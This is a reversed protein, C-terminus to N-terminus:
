QMLPLYLLKPFSFFRHLNNKRQQLRSSSSALVSVETPERLGILFFNLPLLRLVDFIVHDFGIILKWCRSSMCLYRRIKELESIRSELEKVKLLLKGYSLLEIKGSIQFLENLM